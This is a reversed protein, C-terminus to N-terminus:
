REDGGVDVDGVPRGHARRRGGRGAPRVGRRPRRRAAGGGDRGAAAPGRRGGGGGGAGARGRPGSGRPRGGAGPTDLGVQVLVDLTRDARHAGSSLGTLLKARDVSEVVHSYGAVAAAKNSQLQGVFHWRLDLDACAAAKEQAEQHKNEGVDTVGLEALLRVDSEPFFKTVVVLTVEGPDRGASACAAAIRDRVTALNAALEDRRASM